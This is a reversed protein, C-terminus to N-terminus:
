IWCTYHQPLIIKWFILNQWFPFYNVILYVQFVAIKGGAEVAKLAKVHVEILLVKKCYFIAKGMIKWM